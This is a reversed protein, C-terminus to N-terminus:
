GLIRNGRESVNRGVGLDETMLEHQPGPHDAAERCSQIGPEGDAEPGQLLGLPDDALFHVTGTGQLQAHRRHLRRLEPLFRAAPALVPGLEQAELVAMIPFEDVSGGMSSTIVSM